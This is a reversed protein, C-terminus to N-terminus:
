APVIESQEKQQRNYLFVGAIALLVFAINFILHETWGLSNLVGGCSCPVYPSLTLIFLIYGTFSVMLFFSGYLGYLITRPLLLLLSIVIEVSPVAYSLIKSNGMILPSKGLQAQFEAFTMLKNTAAYIFLIVFLFIVVDLFNIRKM